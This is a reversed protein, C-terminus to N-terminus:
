ELYKKISRMFDEINIIDMIGYDLACYIFKEVKEIFADKRVYEIQSDSTRETVADDFVGYGKYTIYIKEASKM